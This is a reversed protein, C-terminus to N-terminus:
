GDVGCEQLTLVCLATAYVDGGLRSWADAAPWSGTERQRPLVSEILSRRWDEFAAGGASRLAMTGCFWYYFDAGGPSAVQDDVVFADREQDLWRPPRDRLLGSWLGARPMLSELAAAEGAALHVRVTVALATLSESVAARGPGATRQGSGARGALRMTGTQPDTAETLFSVGQELSSAPVSVGAARAASLALLMLSTVSSDCAGGPQSTYRWGRGPSQTRVVYDVAARLGAGLRPDDSGRAARALALTAYGHNYIQTISWAGAIEGTEADQANLLWQVGETAAHRCAADSRADGLLALVALGTVGADNLVNRERAEARDAFLGASWRGDDQQASALWDLGRDIARATPIAARSAVEPAPRSVAPLALCLVGVVVALASRTIGLRFDRRDDIMRRLRRHMFAADKYLAVGPAIAGRGRVAREVVHLFGEACHKRTRRGSAVALDDCAYERLQDIVPGVIWVLPHFWYTIMVARQIASILVDRRKVHALEHLIVWGLQRTTLDALLGAPMLVVPRRIGFTAPSEVATTRILRVPVDIGMRRRLRELLAGIPHDSLDDGRRVVRSTRLWAPVFRALWVGLVLAWVLVGLTIFDGYSPGASGTPAVVVQTEIPVAGGVLPDITLVRGDLLFPDRAVYDVLDRLPQQPTVRGLSDPLFVEVPIVLPSIALLFLLSGASAGLRRRLLLWLLAVIVVAISAAIGRDWLLAAIQHASRELWAPFGM